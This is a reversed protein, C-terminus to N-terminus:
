CCFCRGGLYTRKGRGDEPLAQAPGEYRNVSLELAYAYDAM